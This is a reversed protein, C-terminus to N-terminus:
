PQEHWTTRTPSLTEAAQGPHLNRDIADQLIKLRNIGKETFMGADHIAM